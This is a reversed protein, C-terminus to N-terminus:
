DQVESCHNSEPASKKRWMINYAKYRYMIAARRRKTQGVIVRTYCDGGGGAGKGKM